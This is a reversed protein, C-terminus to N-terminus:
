AVHGPIRRTPWVDEVSTVGRRLVVDGALLRTRLGTGSILYLDYSLVAPTDLAALDAATARPTIVGGAADISIRGNATSFRLVANGSRDRWDMEASHGVLSVPALSEDQVAWTESWDEGGSLHITYAGPSVAAGGEGAM